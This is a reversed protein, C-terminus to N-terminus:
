KGKKVSSITFGVQPNDLPQPPQPAQAELIIGTHQKSLLAKEPWQLRRGWRQREAKKGSAVGPM